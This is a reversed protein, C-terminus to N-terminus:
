KILGPARRIRRVAATVEDNNPGREARGLLNEIQDVPLASAAQGNLLAM